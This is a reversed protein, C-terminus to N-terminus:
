TCGDNENASQEATPLERGFGGTVGIRNIVFRGDLQCTGNLPTLNGGTFQEVEVQLAYRAIVTGDIRHHGHINVCGSRPSGLSVFREGTTLYPPWKMAQGHSYFIHVFHNAHGCGRSVGFKFIVHWLTIGYCNLAEDIRTCYDEAFRIHWKM